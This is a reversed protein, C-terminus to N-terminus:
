ERTIHTKETNRKFTQLRQLGRKDQNQLSQIASDMALQTAFLESKADLLEKVQRKLLQVDQDATFEQTKKMQTIEAKLKRIEESTKNKQKM